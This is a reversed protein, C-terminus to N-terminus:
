HGEWVWIGQRWSPCLSLNNRHCLTPIQGLDTGFKERTASPSHPSILFCSLVPLLITLMLNGRVALCLPLKKEGLHM